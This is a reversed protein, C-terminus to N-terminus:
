ALWYGWLGPTSLPPCKTTPALVVHERQGSEMVDAYAQGLAEESDRYLPATDLSWNYRLAAKVTEVCTGRSPAPM